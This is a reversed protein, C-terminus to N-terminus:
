NLFNLIDKPVMSTDIYRESNARNTNYSRIAKLEASVQEPTATVPFDKIQKLKFYKVYPYVKYIYDMFDKRRTMAREIYGLIMMYASHINGHTIETHLEHILSVAEKYGHNFNITLYEESKDDDSAEFTFEELKFYEKDYVIEETHIHDEISRYLSNVAIVGMVPNHLIVVPKAPGRVHSSPTYQGRSTMELIKYLSSVIGPVSLSNYRLRTVISTYLDKNCAIIDRLAFLDEETLINQDLLDLNGQANKITCIMKLEPIEPASYSEVDHLISLSEKLQFHTAKLIDLKGPTPESHFVQFLQDKINSVSLQYFEGPTLKKNDTVSSGYFAKQIRDYEILYSDEAKFHADQSNKHTSLISESIQSSIMYGNKIHAHSAYNIDKRADALFEYEDVVEDSFRTGDTFTTRFLKSMFAAIDEANTEIFAQNSLSELDKEQISEGYIERAEDITLDGELSAESVGHEIWDKDDENVRVGLRFLYDLTPEGKLFLERFINGLEYREQMSATELSTIHPREDLYKKLRNYLHTPKFTSM